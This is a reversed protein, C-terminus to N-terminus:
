IGTDPSKTNHIRVELMAQGVPFGAVDFIIVMIWFLLRRAPTEMTADDLGNQGPDDTVKEAVGILPPGVGAYWHFTFPFLAPVFEEV